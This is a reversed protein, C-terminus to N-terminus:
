FQYFAEIGGQPVWIFQGTGRAQDFPMALVVRGSFRVGMSGFMLGLDAGTLMSVDMELEDYLTEPNLVDGVYATWLVAPGARLNIDWQFNVPQKHPIRLGPMIYIYDRVLFDQSFEQDGLEELRISAPNVMAGLDVYLLRSMRSEMGGTIGIPNPGETIVAGVHARIRPNMSNGAAQAPMVWLFCVTMITLTQLLTKM